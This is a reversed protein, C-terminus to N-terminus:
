KIFRDLLKKLNEKDVPKVVVENAGMRLCLRREEEESYGTLVIIPIHASHEDIERIKKILEFGAMDPLGIDVFLIDYSNKLLALTKVASETVEVKCGLEELMSKHIIQILQNDEILLVHPNKPSKLLLMEKKAEYLWKEWSLKLELQFIKVDLAAPKLIIDAFVHKEAESPYEDTLLMILQQLNSHERIQAAIEQVNAEPISNDLMVIDYPRMSQQAALLQNVTERPPVVEYFSNALLTNIYNKPHDDQAVLIKVTAAYPLWPTEESSVIPFDAIFYFESGEKPVSNVAIKGGILKVLKKVIALGLGTGTFSTNRTYISGSQYFRRFISHQEKLAIGPGTDKVSIRLKASKGNKEMCSVKLVVQGRDTFKIANGILNILIQRLARNNSMVQQPANADYELLLPLNKLKATGSLMNIIHTTLEKLNLPLQVFDYKNTELKNYDLLSNILSLLYSGSNIIHQTYETKLGDSLNPQEIMSAFGLISTLPTRLEHSITALFQTKARSAAEAKQKAVLLKEEIQKRDTIDFSIGVLGKIKGRVDYLPTKRTLYIAPNRHFDIGHEEVTKEKISELVETDIAIVHEATELELLDKDSLGVIHDSSPLHLMEALNNNCGLYHGSLSKWYVNGPTMSVVYKLDAVQAELDAIIEDKSRKDESVIM